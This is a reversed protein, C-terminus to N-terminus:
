ARETALRAGFGLLACGTLADLGRRVPRRALLARARDLGAVLLLLWALGLVAHTLAYAALVPVATEPGLFQPLVALYFALVKPNTINSLFGQRWGALAQGPVPEGAPLAAYRGRVASRLSQVGLWCLYATGAWRLTQFLPEVRVVLAGLGTAAAAGQVVNSATVGGAAWAGRRRGGALTNKVVVAFDAGPVLVLVTAFLVFTAYRSM